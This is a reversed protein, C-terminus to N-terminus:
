FVVIFLEGKFYWNINVNLTKDYDFYYMASPTSEISKARHFWVAKLPKKAKVCWKLMGVSMFIFSNECNWLSGIKKTHLVNFFRFYKKGSYLVKQPISHEM